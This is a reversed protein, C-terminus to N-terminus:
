TPLNDETTDMAAQTLKQAQRLAQGPTSDPGDVAPRCTPCQVPGLGWGNTVALTRAGTFTRAIAAQRSDFNLTGGLTLWGGCGECRVRFLQEIM